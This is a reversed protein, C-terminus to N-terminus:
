HRCEELEAPVSSCRCEEVRLAQWPRCEVGVVVAVLVSSCRCEERLQALGPRCEGGVM